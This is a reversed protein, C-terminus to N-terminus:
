YRSDCVELQEKQAQGKKGQKDTGQGIFRHARILPRESNLNEVIEDVAERFTVFVMVRTEETDGEEESNNGLKEGFYQVVLRKLLDLKPHVPFRRTKQLDLEGLVTRFLPDNWLKRQKARATAKGPGPESDPERSVEHLYTHCM